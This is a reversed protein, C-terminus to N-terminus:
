LTIRRNPWEATTPGFRTALAIPLTLVLPPLYPLEDRLSRWCASRQPESLKALLLDLGRLWIGNPPSSDHREAALLLSRVHAIVAPTGRDLGADPAGDARAQAAVAQGLHVIDFELLAAWGPALVAASPSLELLATRVKPPDFGRLEGVLQQLVLPPQTGLPEFSSLPTSLVM